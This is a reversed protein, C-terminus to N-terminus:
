FSGNRYDEKRMLYNRVGDQVARLQQETAEGRIKAPIGVVVSRPPVKMGQPVLAGAAVIAEEGIEAGDLLIAGMGILSRNGVTCGHVVASHGVTVDDGIRCPFGESVHVVVGDQINTRNGITIPAEDGRMVASFWVGTDEGLRVNGRVVANEAIWASPPIFPKHENDPNNM